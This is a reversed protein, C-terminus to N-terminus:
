GYGNAKSLTGFSCTTGEMVHSPESYGLCVMIVLQPVVVVYVLDSTISPKEENPQGHWNSTMSSSGVITIGPKYFLKCEENEQAGLMGIYERLVSCILDQRFPSM